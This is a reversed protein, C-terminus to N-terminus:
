SQAGKEGSPLMVSVLERVKEIQSLMRAEEDPSASDQPQTVRKDTLGLTSIAFKAAATANATATLIKSSERILENYIRAQALDGSRGANYAGVFLEPFLPGLAPVLGDAGMLLASVAHPTTGELVSFASDRYRSVLAIFETYQGSSDKYGRIHDMRAIADVTDPKLHLGTFSPMNYILIDISAERAIREFHRITEAQSTHRAYFIPTVVACTGGLQELAKLNEIVRQTSSDMIGCVVPVRGDAQEIAIRIARNREAQTLAMTEGNTGAVFIGHLGHSICYEILARLGAEDVRERADIPTIIPPIVGHYKKINM